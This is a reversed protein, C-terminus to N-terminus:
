SPGLPLRLVRHFRMGEDPIAYEIDRCLWEGAPATGALDAAIAVSDELTVFEAITMHPPIGARSFASSRFASASHVRNRLRTFNEAPGVEYVVGPYPASSHVNGYTVKFPAADSLLRRLEEIDERALPRPVPESLSVHAQCAASSVPDYKLRLSDVHEIVGVPPFLYFAGYRYEYQWAQWHSTDRPYDFPAGGM